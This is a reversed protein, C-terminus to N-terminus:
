ELLGLLVARSVAHRRSAAELKAFLNKLHWKVTEEGVALVHAIEKNSLKRALLELVEGEKQTLLSASASTVRVHGSAAPRSASPSPQATAADPAPAGTAYALGYTRALGAAEKMLSTGDQGLRELALARLAMTEVVDGGRQLASAMAGAHELADLTGQWDAAASAARATALWRLLAAQRQWLRGPTGAAHLEAELQALLRRCTVPRQAAAHLRVQEGLAAMRIRPLGRHQGTAFLADCLDLARHEQGQAAAVRAATTYGLLLMEPTASRELVDLRNALLLRAEDVHGAEFQARALVAALMATLPHRRGLMGESSALAPRLTEAALRAQGQWLYSHGLLLQGWRGVYSADPPLDVGRLHRRAQAPQGHALALAACRNAHAQRLWPDATDPAQGAWPAFLSEARDPADAYVLAACSILACEYDLLPTRGAGAGALLASVQADASQPHESLAHSWAIALRLRPRSELEAEPLLARWSALADLQGERVLEMVSREALDLAQGALGAAHAHRAAEHLMGHQTLWAVARAHLARRREGPWAHLRERLLDRALTHLRSWDGAEAETFLSTDAVLRALRAPTGPDAVIAACLAPHLTDCIAVQLLFAHDDPALEDLLNAMFRVHDPVRAPRARARLALQLGLPWGDAAEHLRAADDEGTGAGCALACAEGVSLRLSESGALVWDGSDPLSAALMGLGSRGAVALRVNSPLNHMVYRLMGAGAPPLREVEDILMLVDHRLAAAEALWTTAGELAAPLPAATRRPTEGCGRRLALALGQALRQPEDNGDVTLWAVVRGAALADHRWQVLLASKGWGAGAQLLVIPYGAFCPADLGLHPRALARHPARPPVTKLQLDPAIATPSQSRSM